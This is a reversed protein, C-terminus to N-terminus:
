HRIRKNRKQFFITLARAYDQDTQIKVRDVGASALTRQKTAEFQGARQSFGKRWAPDSTDLWVLEGSEADELALMGVDAIESEM